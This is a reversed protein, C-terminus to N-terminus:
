VEFVAVEYRAVSPQQSAGMEQAAGARLANAAEESARLAQEDEWLTIAIADGTQRDVLLIAGNGHEQAFPVVSQRFNAIGAEVDASSGSVSTVRAHM